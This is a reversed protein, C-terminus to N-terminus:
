KKVVAIPRPSVLSRLRVDTQDIRACILAVTRDIKDQGYDTVLGLSFALKQVEGKMEQLRNAIDHNSLALDDYDDSDM